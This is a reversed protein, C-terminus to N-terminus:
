FTTNRSGDREGAGQTKKSVNPRRQKTQTDTDNVM